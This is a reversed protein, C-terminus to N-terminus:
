LEDALFIIYTIPIYLPAKYSWDALTQPLRQDSINDTITILQTVETNPTNNLTELSILNNRLCIFNGLM